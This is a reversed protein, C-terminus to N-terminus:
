ENMPYVTDTTNHTHKHFPSMLQTLVLVLTVLTLDVTALSLELGTGISSLNAKLKIIVM